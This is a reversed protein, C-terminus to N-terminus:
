APANDARKHAITRHQPMMKTRNKTNRMIRTKEFGSSEVRTEGGRLGIRGRLACLM